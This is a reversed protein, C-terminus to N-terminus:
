AGFGLSLNFSSPLRLFAGKSPKPNLTRFAAQLRFSRGELPVIYFLSGDYPVGFFSTKKRNCTSGSAGSFQAQSREMSRCHVSAAAPDRSGSLANQREAGKKALHLPEKERKPNRLSGIIILGRFGLGSRERERERYIYIYVCVYMYM